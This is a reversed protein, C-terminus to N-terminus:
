LILANFLTLAAAKTSMGVYSNLCNAFDGLEPKLRNIKLRSTWCTSLFIMGSFSFRAYALHDVQYFM